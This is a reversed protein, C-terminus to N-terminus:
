KGGHLQVLAVKVQHAESRFRPLMAHFREGNCEDPIGTDRHGIITATDLKCLYAIAGQLKVSANWLAAPPTTTTYNGEHETGWSDNFDVPPSLTDDAAHAGRICHGALLADLSGHRGEMVIGDISISFHQGSDSWGNSGMHLAQIQRALAFARQVAANHDAIPARNQTDMHHLVIASPTTAAFGHAAPRAGWDATTYVVLGGPLTKPM